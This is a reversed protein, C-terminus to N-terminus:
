GLAEQFQHPPMPANFIRQVVDTVHGYATIAGPQAHAIGGLDHGSQAIEGNWEDM